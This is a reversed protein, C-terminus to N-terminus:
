MTKASSGSLTMAPKAAAIVAATSKVGPETRNHEWAALAIILVIIIKHM